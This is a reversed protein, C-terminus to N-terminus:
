LLYTLLIKTTLYLDQDWFLCVLESPPSVTISNGPLPPHLCGDVSSFLVSILERPM